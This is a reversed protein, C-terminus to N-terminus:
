LYALLRDGEFGRDTLFLIATQLIKDLVLPGDRGLIGGNIGVQGLLSSSDERGQILSLFLNQPQPEPDSLVVVM